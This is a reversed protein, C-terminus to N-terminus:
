QHDKVNNAARNVAAMMPYEKQIEDQNDTIEVNIKGNDFVARIYDAVKPPSMREPGTEGVDRCVTFSADFAEVLEVLHNSGIPLLGLREFKNPEEEERVNLPTYLPTLAGLASVLEANPYNSHPVTVLLPSKMGASLALKVGNKAATQFRRVDDIDRTVPGTGALVLRGSPIIKKDVPVINASTLAGRHVEIFDLVAASLEKLQPTEAVNKGCNTVLIVGDYASESVKTARLLPTSLLSKLLM